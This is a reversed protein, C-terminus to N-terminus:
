QGEEIARASADVPLLSGLASVISPVAGICRVVVLRLGDAGLQESSSCTIGSSTEVSLADSILDSARDAGESADVNANAAYRAAALASSAIVSRQYLYIGVQLVVFFIASLMVAIM